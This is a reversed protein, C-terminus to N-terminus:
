RRRRRRHALLEGRVGVDVLDREGARGDDAPPDHLEGGARDLLRRELEAALRRVDDELVGVHVCATSPASHAVNKWWPWTHSDPM